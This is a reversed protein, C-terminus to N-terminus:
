DRTGFEPDRKELFASLGEEKDDTEFLLATLAAELELGSELQARTENISKKAFWQAIPAGDALEAALEDVRDEFDDDGVVENVLGIDEAESASIHKGTLVLEKAKLYGVLHTLRQTGGAGPIIGLGIEPQGFTASEAAVILDCMLAIETGGGLAVGNVAAIVPVHCGEIADEVDAMSERFEGRFWVGSQGQFEEIDGGGIFAREGEGTLVVTQVESSVTEIADSLETLVTANVANMAEPRTVRVIGISDHREVAVTQYDSSM